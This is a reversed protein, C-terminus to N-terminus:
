HKEPDPRRTNRGWVWRLNRVLFPLYMMIIATLAVPVESSAGISSRNPLHGEKMM